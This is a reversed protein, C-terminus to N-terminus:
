VYKRVTDTLQQMRQYFTHERLTRQQGARAIAEREQDHELYYQVMEVCEDASRYALVEKGPEFMEHLNKKSDTVLLTGVGTAEFLRSNGAYVDAMDIHHNLTLMSQSLIKYMKLGWATGRRSRSVHPSHDLGDTSPSWVEVPVRECIYELWRQRSAHDQTIQGVFSVQISSPKQGNLRELVMPEFGLRLLDSNVGAQRFYDVLNEVVCLMLDYVRFDRREPVPSGHSGILLRVLEKTERFYDTRLRLCNNLVVDPKYYKIQETLVNYPWNPGKLHSIWPVVGRRMRFQWQREVKVGHERAWTTQMHENNFFIQHAEHGLKRLNNCYSLGCAFFSKERVELQKEYSEKELGRRKGYLSNLFWPYDTDIILFRM